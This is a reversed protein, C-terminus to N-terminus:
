EGTQTEEVPNKLQCVYNAIRLVVMLHKFLPYKRKLLATIHMGETPPEAVSDSVFIYKRIRTVSLMLLM